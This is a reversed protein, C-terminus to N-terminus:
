VDGAEREWTGTLNITKKEHELEGKLVIFDRHEDLDFAIRTGDIVLSRKGNKEDLTAIVKVRDREQFGKGDPVYETVTMELKPFDKGQFDLATKGEGTEKIWCLRVNPDQLAKYDDQISKKATVITAVVSLCLLVFSFLPCGIDRLKPPVETKVIPLLVPTGLALFAVLGWHVFFLELRSACGRRWVLLPIACAWFPLSALFGATHSEGGDTVTGLVVVMAFIQTLIAPVFARWPIRTLAAGRSVRPNNM